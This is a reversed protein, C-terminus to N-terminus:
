SYHLGLAGFAMIPLPVAPVPTQAHPTQRDICYVPDRGQWGTVPNNGHRRWRENRVFLAEKSRAAEDPWHPRETGYLELGWFNFPPDTLLRRRAVLATLTQGPGIRVWQRGENDFDTDVDSTPPDWEFGAYLGSNYDTPSSGAIIAKWSVASSELPMWPTTLDGRHQLHIRIWEASATKWDDNQEICM